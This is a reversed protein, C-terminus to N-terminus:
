PAEEPKPAAALMAKYVDANMAMPGIRMDAPYAKGDCAKLSANKMAETPEKTVLQWGDPIQQPQQSFGAEDTVAVALVRILPDLIDPEIVSIGNSDIHSVAVDYLVEYVEDESMVHAVPEGRRKRDAESAARAIWGNFKDAYSQAEWANFETPAYGNGCWQCDDPMPFKAEFDARLQEINM